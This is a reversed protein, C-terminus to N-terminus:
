FLATTGLLTTASLFDGSIALGNQAGSIEGGATYLAAKSQGRRAAWDTIGLTVAITGLFSLISASM